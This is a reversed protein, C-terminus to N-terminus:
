PIQYFKSKLGVIKPQIAYFGSGTEGGGMTDNMYALELQKALSSVSSPSGSKTGAGYKMGLQIAAQVPDFESSALRTLNMRILQGPSALPPIANHELPAITQLFPYNPREQASSFSILSLLLTVVPLNSTTSAKM